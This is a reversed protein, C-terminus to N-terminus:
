PIRKIFRALQEQGWEKGVELLIDAGSAAKKGLRGQRVLQAAVYKSAEAAARDVADAAAKAVFDKAGPLPIAGYARRRDYRARQEPDSLVSYAYAVEKFREAKSPDGRNQDPHLEWALRHYVAKLEAATVQPSVGLVQYLSM